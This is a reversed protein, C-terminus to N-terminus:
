KSNKCLLHQKDKGPQITITDVFEKSNPLITEYSVSEDPSMYYFRANSFESKTRKYNEKDSFFYEPPVAKKQIVYLRTMRQASVNYQLGKVNKRCGGKSYWISFKGTETEYTGYTDFYKDPKGLIREVEERSSELAILKRWEQSYSITPLFIVFILIQLILPKMEIKM